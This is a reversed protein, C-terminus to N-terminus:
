VEKDRPYLPRRNPCGYAHYPCLKERTGYADAVYIAETRCGMRDCEPNNNLRQWMILGKGDDRVYLHVVDRADM